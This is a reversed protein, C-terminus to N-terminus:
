PTEDGDQWALRGAPPIEEGCRALCELYGQRAEQINALAEERSMGQSVCGPLQPCRAVFVGDQDCEIIYTYDAM